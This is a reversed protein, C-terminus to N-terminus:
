GPYQGRENSTIPMLDPWRWRLMATPRIPRSALGVAMAATVNPTRNFMPRVYNRWAVYIWLHHRLEALRKSAAWSRRVLRSVQDRLMALAHNIPFLPNLTNRATTSYERVLAGGRAFYKRVIPPYSPKRDIVFELPERRTHVWKLVKICQEVARNSQSIRKGETLELRARRDRDFARIGGRASM